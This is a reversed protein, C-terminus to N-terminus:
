RTLKGFGSGLCKKKWYWETLCVIWCLEFNFKVDLTLLWWRKLALGPLIQWESKEICTPAKSSFSYGRWSKRSALLQRFPEGLVKKYIHFFPLSPIHTYTPPPPHHSLNERWRNSSVLAQIFMLNLKCLENIVIISFHTFIHM